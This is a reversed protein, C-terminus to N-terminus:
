GERIQNFGLKEVFANYEEEFSKKQHHKEQNKIYERVMLLNSESVSIALYEDQWEFKAAFSNTFDGRLNIWRSSEGKILQLVDKICQDSKLSILCHCHEDYGNITDIYINKKKSNHRIHDWLEKRFESSKLFPIRNKTSWVCHVVIKVFSM